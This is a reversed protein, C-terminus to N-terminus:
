EKDVGQSKDAVVSLLKQGFRYFSSHLFAGNSGNSRKSRFHLLDVMAFAGDALPLKVVTDSPCIAL